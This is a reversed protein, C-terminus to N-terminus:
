NVRDKMRRFLSDRSLLEKPAGMEAVIGEQMVIIVDNELVTGLRHAITLITCSDFKKRILNQIYLDTNYDIGATAEDFLIIKTHALMARGISLLQKEGASLNSGNSQLQHDISFASLNVTDLAIKIEQESRVGPPDLNEKLSGSFVLPDQPVLTIASRLKKLGIQSIDVNGITILGKELEVIRLLALFISSKGSGTRGVFGVRNGAKIKFSLDKLIIPTNLRYKMYVKRFEISPNEPWYRLHEDIPLNKPLEYPIAMYQKIREVSIISNESEAVDFVFYEINAPLTFAYALTLGVIGIPIENRLIIIAILLIFIFFSGLLGLVVDLWGEISALSYLLRGNIDLLDANKKHFKESKQFIRIIKGGSLTESFHNLIPSRSIAELRTLERAAALYINKLKFYVWILAPLLVLLLPFYIMIMIIGCIVRFLSSIVWAFCYPVKEDISAIDKSLRNIIRGSPTVDYFLNVPAKLLKNVLSRHINESARIALFYYLFMTKLFIFLEGGFSLSLYLVLYLSTEKSDNSWEKLIIDGSIRTIVWIAMCLISLILMSFGGSFKFYDFYLQKDIKGSFKEENEILKSTPSSLPQIEPEHTEILDRPIELLEPKSIQSIKGNELVIVRDVEKLTSLNHTVMIRTKNSLLSLFCKKMIHNAIFTDVSSLPDDLLYIEKDAYAARALCIRAKQGGSLNIGREGIETLDKNPFSNIDQMLSCAELVQFYWKENYPEGFLINNRLSDNQLWSELSPSYAIKRSVEANGSLLELEGILSNLFSSKGSGVPGIVAIFEGPKIELNVNKLLIKDGYGFSCNDLNIKDGKPIEKLDNIDLFKQVRRISVICLTLDTILCPFQHLSEQLVILTTLTVFTKEPTLSEGMVQTFYVFVVAATICPTASFIFSLAANLLHFKKLHSLESIRINRITNKFFKEWTYAKIMKINAILQSSAELRKDKLTMISESYKKINESALYGIGICLILSVIASYTAEGVQLHILYISVMMQLPSAIILSLKFFGWCIKATDIELINVGLGEPLKAAKLVKAYIVNCLSNKVKIEIVKDNFIHWGKVSQDLGAVVLFAIIIFIGTMIPKDDSQLYSILVKIFLPASFNFLSSLNGIFMSFLLLKWNSLILAWFLKYRELFYTLNEKEISISDPLPYADDISAEAKKGILLVPKVWTFYARSFVSPAKHPTSFYAYPIPEPQNLPQLEM